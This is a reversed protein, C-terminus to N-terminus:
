LLGGNNKKSNPIPKNEIIVVASHFCCWKLCCDSMKEQINIEEQGILM